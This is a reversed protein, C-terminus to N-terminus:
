VAKLATEEKKPAEAKAFPGNAVVQREAAVNNVDAHWKSSADVFAVFEKAFTTKPNANLVTNLNRFLWRVFNENAGPINLMNNMAHVLYDTGTKVNAPEAKTAQPAPATKAAAKALEASRKAIMENIAKAFGENAELAWEYFEQPELQALTAEIKEAAQEFTMLEESPKTMRGYFSLIFETALESVSALLAAAFAYWYYETDPSVFWVAVGIAVSIGAGIAAQLVWHQNIFMMVVYVGVFVGLLAVIQATETAFFYIPLALAAVFMVFFSLNAIAKIIRDM